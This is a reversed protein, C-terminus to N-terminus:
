QILTAPSGLPLAFRLAPVREHQVLASFCETRCVTRSGLGTISTLVVSLRTGDVAPLCPWRAHSRPGSRATEKTVKKAAAFFTVAAGCLPLALLGVRVCSEAFFFKLFSFFSVAFFVRDM